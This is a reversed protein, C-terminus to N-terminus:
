VNTSSGVAVRSAMGPMESFYGIPANFRYVSGASNIGWVDGDAGVAIQVLQGPVENWSGSVMSYRYISNSGNLGWVDGNDGVAIQALMGPTELWTQTASNYTYIQGSSNIGWVRGDRAIAIQALAGPIWTWSQTLRDFTYIEDSANLGWIDGDSSVAIQVLAGPVYHFTQTGQTSQVFTYIAGTSNTGWVTGNAGASVQELAGGIQNWRQTQVDFTYVAGSPDVGWVNTATGVSIQALTGPIRQWGQNLPNFRYVDGANNIGWVEGDVGVSIQKLSGPVWEFTQTGPNFRYIQQQANLGWVAGDFGVAIHTLSGPIEDWGRTTSDFRYIQGYRNLGWVDGDGGVQIQSLNGPVLNWTHTSSNYQDIAGVSNLGWVAGSAGVAIQSLSGSVQQWRQTQSNYVFVNDNADVGWATGDAGVSIQTLSGAVPTLEGTILAGNWENVFYYGDVSGLGSALDYGVGAFYGIYGGTACNPTGQQCPVQNNGAQIDHFANSASAYLRYLAPNINGQRSGTKEVLLAVIAAFTPAAASTGGVLDLNNSSDRFGNVCNGGSCVLYGDHDASAALALDPTDRAGDNPMNPAQQWTPKTFLISSGGGGATLVDDRVTDNWVREPIYSLASGNQANNTSSWYSGSGENFETGGMGTVYWSSSPYDVALGQSAEKPPNPNPGAGDDCDAAGTDGASAIITMGEANAQQFESEAADIDAQGFQSECNGYTISMVDGLNNDIAYYVSTFVDESVVFVITAQPAVGGAWEIDLDSEGEDGSQTGPDKGTKVIQPNNAPLGAASRFAQIDSVQIDSQGPIVITRGSGNMGSSYLANIDYITAFDNPALFHDGSIASTFQPEAGGAVRKRILRPSPHFDNLGRIATVMGTLARPLVPNTSNAYHTVRGVQYRHISTQFVARVLDATGSMTVATRSRNVQVNSFGASELWAVIKDLDQQGVGFREGYEEPTLWRHYDSNDRNQQDELLRQLEARQSESIKFHITIHPLELTGEAEGADSQVPLRHMNGSLVFTEGNQLEGHIRSAVAGLSPLGATWSVLAPLVVLLFRKV